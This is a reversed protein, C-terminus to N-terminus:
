QQYIVYINIHYIMEIKHRAQRKSSGMGSRNATANKEVAWPSKGKRLPVPEVVVQPKPDGL